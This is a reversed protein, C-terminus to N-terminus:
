IRAIPPFLEPEPNQGHLPAEIGTVRVQPWAKATWSPVVSIALVQLAACSKVCDASKAQGSDHKPSATKGAATMGSDHDVASHAHEMATTSSGGCGGTSAPLSQAWPRGAFSVVMLVILLWKFPAACLRM